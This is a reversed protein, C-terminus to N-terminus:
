RFGIELLKFIGSLWLWTYAVGAVTGLMVAWLLITLLRTM